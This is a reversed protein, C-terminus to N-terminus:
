EEMWARLIGWGIEHFGGRKRGGLFGRGSGGISIMNDESNGDLKISIM